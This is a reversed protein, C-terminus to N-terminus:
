PRIAIGGRFAPSASWASIVGIGDHDDEIRGRGVMMSFEGYVALWRPGIPAEGGGRAEFGYFDYPALEHFPEFASGHGRTSRSWFFAPGGYLDADGAVVHRDVGARVYIARFKTTETMGSLDTFEYGGRGLGGGAYAGWPGFRVGIEMGPGVVASRAVDAFAGVNPAEYFFGHLRLSPAAAAASPLAMAAGLLLWRAFRPHM